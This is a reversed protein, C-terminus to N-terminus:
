KLRDYKRLRLMAEGVVVDACADNLGTDAAKGQRVTGRDGVVAAVRAAAQPDRDIATYSAPRAAIIEAATRGLGPAMEVVDAGALRARALMAASLAAGGPRLVRKGARALVWHGPVTAVPRDAYPLPIDVSDSPAAAKPCDHPEAM